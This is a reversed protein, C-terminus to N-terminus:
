LNKLSLYISILVVFGFVLVEAPDTSVSNRKSLVCVEYRLRNLTAWAKTCAFSGSLLQFSKQDPETPVVIMCSIAPCESYLAYLAMVALRSAKRNSDFCRLEATAM